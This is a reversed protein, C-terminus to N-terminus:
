FQKLGYVEIKRYVTAKSVGLIKSASNLDWNVSELIRNIYNKEVEALTPVSGDAQKDILATQNKRLLVNEKELVDGKSLVVAQMLTNELERVNGRWEHDILMKLVENPIKRVNKHLNTNIKQLFHRVLMEIDNRRERLAPAFITLVSLRYYLDERFKGQQVLNQMDSNTAAIVRAKFPIVVEGGVREFEHEQLVRLLKAQLNFSMESIEDLFVTGEGALEFKGRKDRVADTFAGKDHGFLESELLNEPLATCNIAIFPHEKTIGSSHIIKAILEKGTGSEGQVLVTVRTASAQGIKKFIERMVPTKGVITKNIDADSLPKPIYSVLKQSLQRNDLSRKISLKLRKIDVPKELYDYAGMQMASITSDMDDYATIIIVQILEDIEKVAKLVELGSIDPMNIDSIVLDPNIKKVLAIGKKGCDASYTDFNLEKLYTTLTDRTSDDDDIILIKVM